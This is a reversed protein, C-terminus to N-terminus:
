FQCNWVFSQFNKPPGQPTSSHATRTMWPMYVSTLLRTQTLPWYLLSNPTPTCWPDTRLGKSKMRTSSARERWNRVPTGHSSRYASSRATIASESSYHMALNFTHFSPISRLPSLTLMFFVFSMTKPGPSSRRRSEPANGQATQRLPTPTFEMWHECHM